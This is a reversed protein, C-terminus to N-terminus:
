DLHVGAVMITIGTWPILHIIMLRFYRTEDFGIEMSRNQSSCTLSGLSGREHVRGPDSLSWLCDGGVTIGTWAILHIIVLSTGLKM